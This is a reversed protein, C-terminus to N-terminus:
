SIKTAELKNAKGHKRGIAGCSQCRWGKWLGQTTPYESSEILHVSGCNRCVDNGNAYINMNPHNDMWPLMHLYVDELLPAVDRKCYELMKDIAIQRDKKSGEMCNKWDVFSMDSKTGIGLDSGLEDLRNYTRKFKKQATLLTDVNRYHSPPPYGHLWWRNNLAPMDFRIGNQTIVIQAEDVLDWMKRLIKGDERREADEPTVAEGMIEPEFLWKASWCVISWDKIRMEPSLFNPAYSWSYYESPLTEIDLLLIKAPRPHRSPVYGWSDCKKCWTRTRSPDSKYKGRLQLKGGCNRCHPKSM